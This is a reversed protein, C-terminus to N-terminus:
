QASPVIEGFVVSFAVFNVLYCDCRSSLGLDSDCFCAVSDRIPLRDFLEGARVKLLWAWPVAPGNRV